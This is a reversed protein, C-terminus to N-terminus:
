HSAYLAPVEERRRRELAVGVCFGKNGAMANADSFYGDAWRTPATAALRRVRTPTHRMARFGATLLVLGLSIMCHSRSRRTYFQVGNIDSVMNVTVLSDLTQM